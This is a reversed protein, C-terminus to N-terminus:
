LLLLAVLPPSLLLLAVLLALRSRRHLPPRGNFPTALLLQQIVFINRVLKIFRLEGKRSYGQTGERVFGLLRPFYLTLSLVNVIDVFLVIWCEQLLLM